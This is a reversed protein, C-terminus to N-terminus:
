KDDKEAKEKQKVVRKSIVISIEYLIFIPVGILFQSMVDPPTIIAALLLIVIIAHKRYKKMLEPTIIGVKSLFLIVIPLEFVLGTPMTFMTLYGVYSELSPNSVADVGVSYGTLFNIAFPTIVFYGFLVGLLFLLSCIFVIGRASKKENEYLGPKIFRWIEWFVYPFAVIFGLFLSVKIHTFFQEGMQIAMLHFKPPYFCTAESLSCFFKYTIFDAQKPAFIIHEFVWEKMSFIVIAGAVIALIARVLHWRLQELHDLFSMESEKKPESETVINKTSLQETM